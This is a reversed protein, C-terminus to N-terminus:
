LPLQRPCQDLQTLRLPRQKTKHMKNSVISRTLECKIGMEARQAALFVQRQVILETWRAVQISGANVNIDNVSTNSSRVLLKFPPVAVSNADRLLLIEGIVTVIFIHVSM